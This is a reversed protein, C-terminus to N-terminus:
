PIDGTGPAPVHPAFRLLWVQGEIREIVKSQQEVTARLWEMEARKYGGTDASSWLAAGATGLASIAAIAAGALWKRLSALGGTVAGLKGNDGTEGAITNLRLAQKKEAEELEGVRTDIGAVRALVDAFSPTM